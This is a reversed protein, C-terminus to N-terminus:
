IEIKMNELFEPTVEYGKIEYLLTIWGLEDVTKREPIYKKEYENLQVTTYRSYDDSYRCALVPIKASNGISILAKYRPDSAYQIEAHENKYEVIACPRGFEYELLLFDFEVATCGVGWKRHRRSIGEDRWGTREQTVPM